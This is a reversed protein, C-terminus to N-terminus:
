EYFDLSGYGYLPDQRARMVMTAKPHEEYYPNEDPYENNPELSTLPRGGSKGNLDLLRLITYGVDYELPPYLINHFGFVPDDLDDITFTTDIAGKKNSTVPCDYRDRLQDLVGFQFVYGYSRRLGSFKLAITWQHETNSITICTITATGVAAPLGPKAYEADNHFFATANLYIDGAHAVFPSSALLAIITILMLKKM